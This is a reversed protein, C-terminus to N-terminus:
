TRLRASQAFLAAYNGKIPYIARVTNGDSLVKQQSENDLTKLKEYLSMLFAPPTGLFWVMFWFWLFKLSHRCHARDYTNTIATNTVNILQVADINFWTTPFIIIREVFRNLWKVIVKNIRFDAAKEAVWVARFGSFITRLPGKRMGVFLLNVTPM